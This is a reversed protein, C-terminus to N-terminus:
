LEGYAVLRISGRTSATSPARLLALEDDTVYLFGSSVANDLTWSYDDISEQRKGDPNRMVRLVMATVVARVLAVDLTAPTASLRGEITSDRATLIAWADALLATAVATEETSLPRWRAAIDSTTVPNSM